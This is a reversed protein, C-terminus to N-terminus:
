DAKVIKVRADALYAVIDDYMQGADHRVDALSLYYEMHEEAIGIINKIVTARLDENLLNHKTM